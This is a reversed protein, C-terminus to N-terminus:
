LLKFFKERFEQNESDKDKEWADIVEGDMIGHIYASGLYLYEDAVSAPRIIYPTSGGFLICLQDGAKMCRPGIGVYGKEAIFFNFDKSITTAEIFRYWGQNKKSHELIVMLDRAHSIYEPNDPYRRRIDDLISQEKFTDGIQPEDQPVPGRAKLALQILGFLKEDYSTPQMTRMFIIAVYTIFNGLYSKDEPRKLHAIWFVDRERGAMMTLIIVKIADLKHRQEFPVTHSKVMELAVAIDDHVEPVRHHVDRVVDVELGRLELIKTDGSSNTLAKTDKSATFKGNDFGAAKDEPQWRPAWLPSRKSENPDGVYAYELIDLNEKTFIVRKAFDAFVGSESKSYDPEVDYHRQGALGLLAYIKDRQVTAESKSAWQVLEFLDKDDWKDKGLFNFPVSKWIIEPCDEKGDAETMALFLIKNKLSEYEDESIAIDGWLLQFKSSVALEQIIWVRLFYSAGLMLNLDRWARSNRLPFNMEALHDDDPFHDMGSSYEKLNSFAALLGKVSNASETTAPGLWAVVMAANSYILRMISVQASREDYSEQNICIQDTWLSRPEDTLRLHRLTIDLSQTIKFDYSNCKMLRSESRKGWEYSLAEYAPAADLRHAELSGQLDDKEEGPELTFTRFSDKNLKEPYQFWM